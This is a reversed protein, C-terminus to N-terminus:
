ELRLLVEQGFFSARGTRAGRDLQLSFDASEAKRLQARDSVVGKIALIGATDHVDSVRVVRSFGTWTLSSKLEPPGALMTTTITGTRQTLNLHGEVVWTCYAPAKGGAPLGAVAKFTLTGANQTTLLRAVPIAAVAAAGVTGTGAIALLKRRSIRTTTKSMTKM